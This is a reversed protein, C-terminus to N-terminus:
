YEKMEIRSDLHSSVIMGIRRDGNKPAMIRLDSSNPYIFTHFGCEVRRGYTNKTTNPKLVNEPVYM